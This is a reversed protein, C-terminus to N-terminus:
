AKATKKQKIKAKREVLQSIVVNSPEIPALVERGGQKRMQIGEVFIKLSDLNVRTVLGEKKKFKGRLVSIKDGKRVPMSRKKMKKRLEKGLHASVLKQKLHLATHYLAKRKKRPQSSVRKEFKM